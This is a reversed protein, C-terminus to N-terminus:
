DSRVVRYQRWPRNPQRAVRTSRPSIAVIRDTARALQREIGIFFRTWAPSFYGELVHGHYTHVVRAPSRRGATANYIATATRGLTGAKAMHTHVIHPRWDRLLDLLRALTVADHVPSVPRRLSTLQRSHTSPALLYRMDGEADGLRGHILQTDFGRTRLRESLAIAQISPGGINLRTIVRLVRIPRGDAHHLATVTDSGRSSRRTGPVCLSRRGRRSAYTAGCEHHSGRIAMSRRNKGRSYRSTADLTERPVRPYRPRPRGGCGPSDRLRRPPLVAEPRAAMSRITGDVELVQQVRAGVATSAVGDDIEAGRGLARVSERGVEGVVRVQPILCGNEVLAVVIEPLRVQWFANRLTVALVVEEPSPLRGDKAEGSIERHQREHKALLRHRQPCTSSEVRRIASPHRELRAEGRPRRCRNQRGSRRDGIRQPM